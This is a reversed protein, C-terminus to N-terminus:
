LGTDEGDFYHSGYFTNMTDDADCIGIYDYLHVGHNIRPEDDRCKQVMRIMSEYIVPPIMEKKADILDLYEELVVEDTKRM